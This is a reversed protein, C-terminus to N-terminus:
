IKIEYSKIWNSVKLLEESTADQKIYNARMSMWSVNGKVYGLGPNIKDVSPSNMAPGGKGNKDIGGWVLDIGLVPCKNDIPYIAILYDSDLNFPINRRKASNKLTNLRNIIRKRHMKEITTNSCIFYGDKDVFRFDYSVFVRDNSFLDGYVFYNGTAPNIKKKGILKGEKKNKVSIKRADNIKEVARDFSKKHLWHLKFYGDADIKSLDYKYFYMDISADFDGRKYNKGTQQNIKKM